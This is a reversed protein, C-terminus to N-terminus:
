VHESISCDTRWFGRMLTLLTEPHLRERACHLATSYGGSERLQTLDHITRPGQRLEEMVSLVRVATGCKYPLNGSVNSLLQLQYTHQEEDHYALCILHNRMGCNASSQAASNHAGAQCSHSGVALVVVPQPLRRYELRREHQKLYRIVLNLKRLDGATPTIIVAANCGLYM